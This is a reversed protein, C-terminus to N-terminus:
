GRVTDTYLCCRELYGECGFVELRYQVTCVGPVLVASPKFSHRAADISNPSDFEEMM